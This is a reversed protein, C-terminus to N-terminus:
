LNDVDPNSLRNLPYLLGRGLKAGQILRVHPDFLVLEQFSDESRWLECSYTCSYIFTILVNLHGYSGSKGPASFFM